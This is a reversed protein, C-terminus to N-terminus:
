EDKKAPTKDGEIPKKPDIPATSEEGPKVFTPGVKGDEKPKEAGEVVPTKTITAISQRQMAVLEKDGNEEAKM